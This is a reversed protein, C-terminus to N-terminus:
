HFDVVGTSQDLANQNSFSWNIISYDIVKILQLIWVLKPHRRIIFKHLLVEVANQFQKLPMKTQSCVWLDRHVTYVLWWSLVNGQSLSTGTLERVCIWLHLRACVQSFDIHESKTTRLWQASTHHERSTPFKRTQKHAHKNIHTNTQTGLRQANDDHNSYHCIM